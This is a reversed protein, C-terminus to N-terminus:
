RALPKDTLGKYSGSIELSLNFSAEDEGCVDVNQCYFEKDFLESIAILKTQREDCRPCTWVLTMKQHLLIDIDLEETREVINWSM